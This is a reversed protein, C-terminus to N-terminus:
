IVSIASIVTLILCNTIYHDVAINEHGKHLDLSYPTIWHMGSKFRAYLRIVKEVKCDM